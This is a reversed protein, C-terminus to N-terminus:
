FAQADNSPDFLTDDFETRNFKKDFELDTDTAGEKVNVSFIGDRKVNFRSVVTINEGSYEFKLRFELDTGKELAKSDIALRYEGYGIDERALTCSVDEKEGDRETTVTVESPARGFLSNIFVIVPRHSRAGMFPVNKSFSILRGKKYATGRRLVLLAAIFVVIEVTIIGMIVFIWPKTVNDENLIAYIALVYLIILAAQLELFFSKVTSDVPLNESTSKGEMNGGEAKILKVDTDTVRRYVLVSNGPRVHLAKVVDDELTMKSNDDVRSSGIIKVM